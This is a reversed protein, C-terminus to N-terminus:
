GELRGFITCDDLYRLTRRAAEIENADLNATVLTEQDAGATVKGSPSAFCSEGLYDFAGESGCYNAYAVFLGNEFARTPVMSRAVFAWEKKLATPAVILQAGRVACARVAEPFEVDYCVLIAIQWGKLTFLTYASGPSFHAREFDNPLRLKRHHAITRGDADICIAANHVTSGELEPYGYLLATRRKRALASAAEAFAGTRPEALRRIRDGVNYGSLFLEPCIVLDLEGEVAALAQDLRQLREAPAEDRCRYQYIAARVINM